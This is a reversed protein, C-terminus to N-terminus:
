GGVRSFVINPFLEENVIPKANLADTIDVKARSKFKLRIHDMSNVIDNFSIDADPNLQIQSITPNKEKLAVAALQLGDFNLESDKNAVKVEKSQGKPDTVIFVFGNKKSIRLSITTEIKPPTQQNEEAVVQPTPAELMKVQVFAVSLLLMPVISVIIDLIPALNLDFTSDNTRTRSQRM